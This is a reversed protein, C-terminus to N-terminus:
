KGSENNSAASAKRPILVNIFSKSATSCEAAVTDKSARRPILINVPKSAVSAVSSANAAGNNVSKERKPVLVNVPKEVSSKEVKNPRSETENKAAAATTPKKTIGGLLIPKIRKPTSPKKAEALLPKEASVTDSSPTACPVSTETEMPAALPTEGTEVGNSTVSPPAELKLVKKASLENGFSSSTKKEDSTLVKLFKTISNVKKPENNHTSPSAVVSPPKKEAAAVAAAAAAAASAAAAENLLAMQREREEPTLVKVFKTISPANAPKPKPANSASALSSAASAAPPQSTSSSNAVNGGNEAVAANPEPEECVTIYKWGNELHSLDLLGYQGRVEDHVVSFCSSGRTLPSFIPNNLPREPTDSVPLRFEFDLEINKESNEYHM